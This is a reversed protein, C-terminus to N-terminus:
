FRPKFIMNNGYWIGKPMLEFYVRPFVEKKLYFFSRRPVEQDNFFTESSAGGYKFEMLM